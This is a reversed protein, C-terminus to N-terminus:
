RLETMNLCDDCLQWVRNLFEDKGLLFGHYGMLCTSTHYHDRDNPDASHSIGMAHGLEHTPTNARPESDDTDQVGSYTPWYVRVMGLTRPTVRV